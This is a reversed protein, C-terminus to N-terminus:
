FKISVGLGIVVSSFNVVETREIRPETVKTNDDASDDEKYVTEKDRVDMLSLIDVGAVTAKTTKMKDMKMSMQRGTIGLGVSIMDNISYDAGISGTVGIGMLYTQEGEMITEVTAVTEKYNILTKGSMGISPGFSIYPSIKNFSTSLKADLDITMYSSTGSMKTEEAPQFITADEVVSLLDMDAESGMIYAWGLEIALNENIGMGVALGVNIGAGPAYYINENKTVKGLLGVETDTGSEGAGIGLGLGFNPRITIAGSVMSASLVLCVLVLLLKKM